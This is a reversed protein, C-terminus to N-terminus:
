NTTTGCQILLRNFCCLRAKWIGVLVKSGFMNFSQECKIMRIIQTRANYIAWLPTRNLSWNMRRLYRISRFFINSRRLPSEPPLSLRRKVILYFTQAVRRLLDYRWTKLSPFQICQNIPPKVSPKPIDTVNPTVRTPPIMTTPTMTVGSVTVSESTNIASTTETIIPPPSSSTTTTMSTAITTEEVGTSVSSSTSAEPETSSSQITSPVITTGDANESTSEESDTPIPSTTTIGLTTAPESSENSNGESSQTPSLSSSESTVSSAESISESSSETVLNTALESTLETSPSESNPNPSESLETPVTPPVTSSDVPSESPLSSSIDTSTFPITPSSEDSAQTTTGSDDPTKEPTLDTSVTTLESGQTSEQSPGETLGETSSGVSQTSSVITTVSESDDDKTTTQGSEPESVEMIKTTSETTGAEVDNIKITTTEGAEYIKSTSESEGETTATIEKSGETATTEYGGEGQAETITTVPESSTEKDVPSSTTEAVTSDTVGEGKTSENFDSSIIVITSPEVQPYITTSEGNNSGSVNIEPKSTTSSESSGSEPVNTKLDDETVISENPDVSPIMTSGPNSSDTQLADEGGMAANTSTEEPKESNVSKTVDVSGAETTAPLSVSGDDTPMNPKTSSEDKGVSISVGDESEGSSDDPDVTVHVVTSPVFEVDKDNEITTGQPFDGGISIGNNKDKGDSIVIKSILKAKENTTSSSSKLDDNEGSENEAIPLETTVYENFDPLLTTAILDGSSMPHFQCGCQQETSEIAIWDSDNYVNILEIQSGNESQTDITSQNWDSKSAESKSDYHLMLGSNIMWFLAALGHILRM